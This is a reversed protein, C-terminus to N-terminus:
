ETEIFGIEPNNLHELTEKYTTQLHKYNELSLFNAKGEEYLKLYEKSPLIKFKYKGNEIYKAVWTPIYKAEKLKTEQGEKEITYKLIMGSDTYHKRQGCFFNGLGYAVFVKRGDTTTIMETTQLVHPHSGIIMDAGFDAIKQVIDKQWKNPYREYETGFHLAVVIFDSKEKAKEVDNKIKELDILNIMWPKPIPLGNMGYIYGLFAIKLDDKQYIFTNQSAEETAYGAIQNINNEELIKTTTELGKIGDDMTHNTRFVVDLGINKLTEVLEVPSRFLPYGKYPGKTSIVGGLWATSLDAEQFYNVVPSFSDDFNYTKKDPELASDLNSQHLFIDGVSIITAETKNIIPPTPLPPTIKITQPETKAKTLLIYISGTAVFGIIIFTITLLIKKM